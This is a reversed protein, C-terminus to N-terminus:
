ESHHVRTVPRVPNTGIYPVTNRNVAQNTGAIETLPRTDEWWRPFVRGPDLIPPVFDEIRPDRLRGASGM